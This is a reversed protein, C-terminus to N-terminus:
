VDERDLKKQLRLIARSWLKRAADTSRDMQQGIEAFPLRQWNRLEIVRRESETLEAMAQYLREKQEHRAAVKSPSDTRDIFRSGAATVSDDRLPQERGVHRKATRYHRHTQQLHNILIGRLWALLAERSEGEFAGICRQASVISNQVIDSAGVKAALDDNLEANAITLLYPRCQDILQGAASDSGGKAQRILDLFDGPDHENEHQRTVDDRAKAAPIPICAKV